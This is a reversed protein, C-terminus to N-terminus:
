VLPKYPHPKGARLKKTARKSGMSVKALLRASVPVYIGLKFQSSSWAYKSLFSDWRFLDADVMWLPDFLKPNQPFDSRRNGAIAEGVSLAFLVKLSLNQISGM